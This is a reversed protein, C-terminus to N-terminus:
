KNDCIEYWYTINNWWREVRGDVRWYHLFLVVVFCYCLRQLWWSLLPTTLFSTQPTFTKRGFAPKLMSSSHLFINPCRWVGGSLEAVWNHFYWFCIWFCILFLVISTEMTETTHKFFLPFFRNPCPYVFSFIISRNDVM